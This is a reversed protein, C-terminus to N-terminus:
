KDKKEKEEIKKLAKLVVAGVICNALLCVVIVITLIIEAEM